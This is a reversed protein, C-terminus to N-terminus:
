SEQRPRRMLGPATELHRCVVQLFRAALAGDIVRHDCSLALDLVQRLVPRGAADPRFVPQSAGVGLISSQGPNVIPLLATAGFMGVNSITAAGGQLEAPSLRGGRTRQVLDDVRAAVEDLVLGGMNRLVPAVLGKPGEIALGVDAGDLDLLRGQAWVCNMPPIAVFARAMAAVLFHSVTLKKAGPDANLQARLALMETVDAQAFVYFHPIDRKSETLRRAAVRQYASPERLTGTDAADPEAAAILALADEVAAGARAVDQAVIRGRVGSGAVAALDIGRSAALRRALPTAITRMAAGEPLRGPTDGAEKAAIGHAEIDPGEGAVQLSAVVAGVPLVEGPAAHLRAILGDHQAEIENSIKDTEVVFIVDGVAVMDGPAVKWEALMGETMTLGLKPM